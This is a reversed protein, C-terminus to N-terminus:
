ADKREIITQNGRKVWDDDDTYPHIAIVPNDRKFVSSYQRMLQRLTPHIFTSTRLESIYVFSSLPMRQNVGVEFGMPIEYQANISDDNLGTYPIARQYERVIEYARSKLYEPLEDIYWQSFRHTTLLPMGMVSSRQRQMDRFSAFDLAYRLDINMYRDYERPIKAFKPRQSLNLMAQRYSCLHINHQYSIQPSYPLINDEYPSITKYWEGTDTQLAAQLSAFSDPYAEKLTEYITRAMDRVEFLPHISLPILHDAFQRFNMHISLQTKMGAPLWARAIDFARAKIANDYVERKVNDTYPLKEKLYEVLIPVIEIYFNLALSHAGVKSPKVYVMEGSSFDIYRSSTEQGAYFPTHEFAKAALMSVGEVFVTTTGCDGISKHGYGVYYRKMFSGSGSQKLKDLHEIVSSNSRSYLAQLMANDQHDIGKIHHVTGNSSKNTVVEITSM